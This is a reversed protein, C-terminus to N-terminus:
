LAVHKKLCNINIIFDMKVILTDWYDSTNAKDSISFNARETFDLTNESITGYKELQKLFDNAVKYNIEFNPERSENLAPASANVSIHFTVNSFKMQSFYEKGDWGEVLWILPYKSSNKIGLSREIQKKDMAGMWRHLAEIDGYSYAVSQNNHMVKEAIPKIATNLSFIM